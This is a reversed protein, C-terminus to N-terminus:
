PQGPVAVQQGYIDNLIRDAGKKRLAEATQRGLNEPDTGEAQERLLESGDPRGCIASLLLKGNHREAFAGIPV